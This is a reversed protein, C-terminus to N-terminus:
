ECIIRGNEGIKKYNTLFKVEYNGPEVGDIQGRYPMMGGTLGSRHGATLPVSFTEEESDGKKRLLVVPEEFFEGKSYYWVFLKEGRGKLLLYDNGSAEPNEKPELKRFQKSEDIRVWSEGFAKGVRITDTLVLTPEQSMEIDNFILMWDLNAYGPFQVRIKADMKVISDMIEKRNALAHGSAQSMQYLKQMEVLEPNQSMLKLMERLAEETLELEPSIVQERLIDKAVEVTLEQKIEKEQEQELQQETEKEREIENQLNKNEEM